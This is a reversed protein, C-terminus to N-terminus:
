LYSSLNRQILSNVTLFFNLRCLSTTRLNEPYSACNPTRGARNLTTVPARPGAIKSGYYPIQETCHEVTIDIVADREHGLIHIINGYTFLYRHAVYLYIKHPCM